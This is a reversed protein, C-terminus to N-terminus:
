GASRLDVELALLVFDARDSVSLKPLLQLDYGQAPYFSLLRHYEETAEALGHRRAGDTRYIEPWPPAMFVRQNYRLDLRRLDLPIECTLHYLGAAADLLGRDFFVLSSGTEAAARDALSLEITRRAFAAGDIWPLASGGRELEEAVIRRGPEPVVTHGRRALEELL